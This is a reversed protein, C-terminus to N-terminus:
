RGPRRAALGAGGWGRLPRGVLDAVTERARHTVPRRRWEESSVRASDTLDGDFHADLEATVAPDHLLLAVQENLALSRIDLNATGVMALDGDVTTVKAHLLSPQYRWIQVGADLLPQYERQGQLHM